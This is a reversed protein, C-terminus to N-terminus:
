DADPDFLSIGPGANEDEPPTDLSEGSGFGGLVDGLSGFEEIQNLVARDAQGSRIWGIPGDSYDHSIEWDIDCNSSLQCLVDLADKITGDPLGESEVEAADDPHPTFNPKSGGMVHGDDDGSFFKGVSMRRQTSSEKLSPTVFSSQSSKLGQPATFASSEALLLAVPLFAASASLISNFRTVM